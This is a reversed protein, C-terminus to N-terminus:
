KRKGKKAPLTAEKKKKYSDDFMCTMGRHNGCSGREKVDVTSGKFTFDIVCPDGNQQFVAKTEDVMTMTGKLEGTCAGNDREKEFHIFFLYNRANNGNRISIFNKKDLVYDGSYKNTKAFTDIPNVIENNRKEDENSDNIVEVFGKNEKSYAYGNKSYKYVDHETKERSLLFTPETNVNVSHVYDDDAQNNLLLLHNLYHEKKDFLYTLLSTKKGDTVTVLLYIENENEIKGVPHIKLSETKKAGLTQLATDPIFQKLVDYSILTSDGAKKMSTDAVIFPLNLKHFATFFDSKNVPENASLTATKNKCALAFLILLLVLYRPM